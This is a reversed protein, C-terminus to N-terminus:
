GILCVAAVVLLIAAASLSIIARTPVPCLNWWRDFDDSVIFRNAEPFTVALGFWAFACAAAFKLLGGFLTVAVSVITSLPGSEAVSSKGLALLGIVLISLAISVLIVERWNSKITKFM